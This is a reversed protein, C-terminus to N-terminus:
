SQCAGARRFALGTNVGQGIARFGGRLVDEVAGLNNARHADMPELSAANHGQIFSSAHFQDKLTHETM